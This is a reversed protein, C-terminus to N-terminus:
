CKAPAAEYPANKLCLTQQTASTLPPPRLTQGNGGAPGHRLSPLPLAPDGRAGREWKTAECMFDM